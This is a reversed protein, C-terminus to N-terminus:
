SIWKAKFLNIVQIPNPKFALRKDLGWTINNAYLFIFPAQSYIIGEADILAKSYVAEDAASQAKDLLADLTPNNYWSFGVGTRVVANYLLLPDPGSSGYSGFFAEPIDRVATKAAFDAFSVEQITANVGIAQLQSAVATAAEVGLIYRAQPVMITMDFGDAFGAKKLLSKAKAPDYTYPKLKNDLPDFFTPALANTPTAQGQFLGKTIGQRDIAYNLAQRVKLKKLAPVNLTDLWIAAMRTSPKSVVKVFPNGGLSRIQSPLLGYILDVEGTSFSFLRSTVDPITKFTVKPILVKGLFYDSKATLVLEKQPTYSVFKYAGTGVPTTTLTSGAGLSNNPIILLQPLIIPLRPTPSSTILNVTTANVAVADTLTPYLYAALAPKSEPLKGLLAKVTYVVDDATFAAGNSFKVGSRLTLQLTKPDIFKWSKALIPTLKKSKGDSDILPDYINRLESYTDTVRQELPNLSVPDVAMAVTVPRQPVNPVAKATSKPKAKAASAAQLPAVAIVSLALAATISLSIARM